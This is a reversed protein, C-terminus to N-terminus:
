AIVWSDPSMTGCIHDCLYLEIGDGDKNVRVEDFVCFFGISYDCFFGWLFKDKGAGMYYGEDTVNYGYEWISPIGADANLWYLRLACWVIVFAAFWIWNSARKM